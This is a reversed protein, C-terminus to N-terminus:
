DGELEELVQRGFRGPTHSQSECQKRLGAQSGTKNGKGGSRHELFSVPQLFEPLAEHGPNLSVAPNLPFFLPGIAV